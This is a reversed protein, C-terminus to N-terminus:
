HRTLSWFVHGAVVLREPHKITQSKYLPNDSMLMVHGTEINQQVRKIITEGEYNLAYIGERRLTNRRLDVFALDRDKLTPYMSEGVVKIIGLMDLPADTYARLLSTAVPFYGIPSEDYNQSGFGASAQIDYIALRAFEEGAFEFLSSRTASSTINPASIFERGPDHMAPTMQLWARLKRDEDATLRRVNRMVKNFKVYDMGIAAAADKQIKGRIRLAQAIEDPTM